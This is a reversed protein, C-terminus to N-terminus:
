ADVGDAPPPRDERGGENMAGKTAEADDAPKVLFPIKDMQRRSEDQRQHYYHKIMDSERHGLWSMLLQEAVGHDASMSCFYHRLSHIRGAAIGPEDGKSPFRSALRPLVDRKLINRVTDPKIKGGRPGHFVRGDPAEKLGKLLKGLDANIPLTRERHSKTTRADKRKSKRTNRTTDTLRLVEQGLDVDGWRLGALESIRLGTTALAVVVDALWNLEPEARCLGVIAAVEAQSYCYTSTGEPKKLKLTTILNAAPLLKENVMWKVVQKLVTLEIYQTKDHYDQDELWKGYQMLVAKDVQQWHHVRKRLAFALFKDLVTRYRKVTGATGGGQVAPRSVYDMYKRRGDELKLLADQDQGLLSADALGFEVAKVLDLRRLMTLAEERDRTGLSHRGVDQTNSRGDAYYVGNRTGLLWAFYRGAVQDKKRKRPM